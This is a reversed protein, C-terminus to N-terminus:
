MSCNGPSAVVPKRPPKPCADRPSPLPLQGATKPATSVPVAWQGCRGQCVQWSSVSWKSFCCGSISLVLKQYNKMNNWSLKFDGKLEQLERSLISLSVRRCEMCTAVSCPVQGKIVLTCFSLPLNESILLDTIWIQVTYLIYQLLIYYYIITYVIYM